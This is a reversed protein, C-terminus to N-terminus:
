DDAGFGYSQTDSSEDSESHNEDNSDKPSKHILTVIKINPDDKANTQPTKFTSYRSGNFIYHPNVWYMNKRSKANELIGNEVLSNLANYYSSKKVGLLPMIKKSLLQIKENDKGLHLCIYILLKLAKEDLSYVLKEFSETKYLKAGKDSDFLSVNTERRSQFGNSTPVKNVTESHIEVFELPKKLFPNKENKSNKPKSTSKKTKKEM